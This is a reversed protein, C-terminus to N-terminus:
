QSVKVRWRPDGIGYKYIDSNRVADTNQYYLGDLNDIEHVDPDGEMHPPNPNVMLETPSIQNTGLKIQLEDKGFTCSEPWMGASNKNASFASGSFINGNTLNTNTSYNNRINFTIVGSGNIQRVDMGEMFLSRSDGDQKTLIFLNNEVTITSGGPLYRFEFLRRGKSRTSFNVFTNNKLTINYSVESGWALDKNGDAFLCTRPSDYFTNNTFIMEQYINSKSNKGDGEIWSYGRGDSSYYGCNYFLCGDVIFKNFNKRNPGQVRVFGRIMRQFSCNILQISTISVAMGNSYMNAFYNGSAVGDGVNQALPCDFDIDKFILDGIYIGGMEGVQPTRGFMFNVAQTNGDVKSLGNLYVKAKGNSLTEPDTALTLGKCLTVANALYYTKGGELLFQTGEALNSDSIYNNLITDIRCAGYEVAGPITDNPDCFHPIKVTGMAGGKTRIVCTNYIADWYVPVNDNIVNIVYVNNESLGDITIGNEFDETTLDYSRWKDPVVADPNTPSPEVILRNIVFNGDVVDFNETFSADSGANALSCDIRVNISNNEIEDVIIVEPTNYRSETTLEMYETQQSTSGYGYWKSHFGEGKKSLTRIAFKYATSYQFDKLVIDLVDPGVITDGVIHAPNEWDSALGSGVNPSLAWKLEYGACDKVGYWYLHVDNVNVVQCQYPDSDGNNTNDNKRFMTMFEREISNEGEQIAIDDKCSFFSMFVACFVFLNLKNKM